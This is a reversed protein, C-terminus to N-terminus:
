ARLVRLLHDFEEQVEGASAVTAAIATRLSERARARLRSVAMKLAGESMGLGSALELYTAPTADEWLSLRLRDFLEGKGARHYEERLNLLAQEITALAWSREFAEAPTGHQVARAAATGDRETSEAELSLVPMGGGRFAAGAKRWENTIFNQVSQLLFTRFRGRTPDARAFGQRALFAAFFGQTLDRADEPHGTRQRAFAYVAPWYARCLTELAARRVATDADAAALVVSWHTAKSEKALRTGAGPQESAEAM